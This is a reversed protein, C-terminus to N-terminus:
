LSTSEHGSSVSTNAYLRNTGVKSKEFLSVLLFIVICPSSQCWLAALKLLFSKAYLVTRAVVNVRIKSAIMTVQLLTRYSRYCTSCFRRRSQRRPHRLSLSSRRRRRRLRRLTPRRRRRRWRPRRLTGVSRRRLRRLRRLVYREWAYYYM